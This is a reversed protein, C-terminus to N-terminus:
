KDMNRPPHALIHADLDEKAFLWNRKNKLVHPINHKKKRVQFSELKLNLYKAAEATTLLGENHNNENLIKLCDSRKFILRTKVKEFPLEGSKKAEMVMAKSIGLLEAAQSTTLTESEAQQRNKILEHSFECESSQARRVPRNLSKAKLLVQNAKEKEAEKYARSNIILNEEM